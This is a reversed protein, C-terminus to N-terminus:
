LEDFLKGIISGDQRTKSPVYRAYKLLTTKINSHGLTKSVWFPDEGNKIALSAFTHRLQYAPRHKLEKLKMIVHYKQRFNEWCIRRNLMNTFVYESKGKSILEQEKILQYLPKNMDIDRASSETKLDTKEGLVFGERILIKKNDWDIREWKLAVAENPRCGSFALFAVFNYYHPFRERFGNFLAKLEEENFPYIDVRENRLLKIKKFPNKELKGDEYLDKFMGMISYIKKNIVSNKLKGRMYQVMRLLDDETVDCLRRDGIIPDIYNKFFSLWTRRSNKVIHVKRGLWIPFFEAVTMLYTNDQEVDKDTKKPQFKENDPFIAALDAQKVGLREFEIETDIRNLTMEAFKRNKPTDQLRLYIRHREQGYVFDLFLKKNKTGIFGM